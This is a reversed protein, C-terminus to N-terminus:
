ADACCLCCCPARSTIACGVLALMLRLSLQCVACVLVTAAAGAAPHMILWKCAVHQLDMSDKPVPIGKHVCLLQMTFVGLFCM